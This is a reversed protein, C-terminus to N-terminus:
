ETLAPALARWQALPPAFPPAGWGEHLVHVAVHDAGAEIHLDLQARIKEPAGWAVLQDILRDSGGDRVDDESWGLRILNNSYNPLGLCLSTYKRAIERAVAPDSEVVVAHEPALVANPGLSERAARTHDPTVFYPHAGASRSRATQLMKPGLAALMRSQAPVSPSAADLADLYASMKSLPKQYREPRDEDNVVQAHSAGLGLVFRGRHAKEVQGLGTAVDGPEHSWINLVGIAVPISRTAGLLNAAIDFVPGGLVGPYWIATYGLEELEIAAEAAAAQDGFHFEAGFVGFGSLPPVM